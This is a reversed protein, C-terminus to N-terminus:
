CFMWKALEEWDIYDGKNIGGNGNHEMKINYPLNFYIMILYAWFSAYLPFLNNKLHYKWILEWDESQWDTPFYSTIHYDCTTPWAYCLRCTNKGVKFALRPESAPGSFFHWEAFLMLLQGWTNSTMLFEITHAWHM